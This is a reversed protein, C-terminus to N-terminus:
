NEPTHPRAYRYDRPTAGYRATFSDRFHRLSNFGAMQAIEATTHGTRLLLRRAYELRIGRIFSNFDVGKDRCWLSVYTRNTGIANAVDIISLDNRTFVSVDSCYARIAQAFEPTQWAKTGPTDDEPEVNERPLLHNIPKIRLIRNIYFTWPIISLIMYVVRVYIYKYPDLLTVGLWVFFYLSLMRLMTRVWTVAHPTTDAFTQNLMEHYRHVHIRVQVTLALGVLITYGLAIHSVWLSNTVIRLPIAIVIPLILGIIHGRPTPKLRVICVLSMGLLIVVIEEVMTFVMDHLPYLKGVPGLAIDIDVVAHWVNRVIQIVMAAFLLRKAQGIPGRRRKRLAQVVMVLNLLYFMALAGYCAIKFQHAMPSASLLIM